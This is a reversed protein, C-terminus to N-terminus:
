QGEHHLLPGVAALRLRNACRRTPGAAQLSPFSPNSKSSISAGALDVKSAGGAALPTPNQMVAM